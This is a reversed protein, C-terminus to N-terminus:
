MEPSPGTRRRERRRSLFAALVSGVVLPGAVWRIVDGTWGPERGAMLALSQAALCIGLLVYGLGWARVAWVPGQIPEPPRRPRLVARCGLWVCGLGLATGLVDVAADFVETM